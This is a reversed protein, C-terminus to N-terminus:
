NAQAQLQSLLGQQYGRGQAQQSPDIQYGQAQTGQASQGQAQQALGLTAGQAQSASGTPQYFNYGYGQPMQGGAARQMNQFLTSASNQLNGAGQALQGNSADKWASGDPMFDYWAM